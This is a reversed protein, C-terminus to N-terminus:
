TVGASQMAAYLFSDILKLSQVQTFSRTRSGPPIFSIATTVGDTVSSLTSQPRAFGAQSGFFSCEPHSVTFQRDDLLAPESVTLNTQQANLLLLGCLVPISYLFATEAARNRMVKQLCRAEPYTATM